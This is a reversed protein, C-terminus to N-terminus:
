NQFLVIQKAEETLVSFKYVRRHYQSIGSQTGNPWKGNEEYYKVIKKVCSEKTIISSNLDDEEPTIHKFDRMQSIHDRMMIEMNKQMKSVNIQLTDVNKRINEILVSQEEFKNKLNSFHTVMSTLDEGSTGSIKTMAAQFEKLMKLSYQLAYPSKFVNSVYLVPMGNVFELKLRGKSPINDTKLSVFLGCNCKGKNVNISMDRVFKDVNLNRSSAVNKVEVLCRLSKLNWLIDGSATTGSVDDIESEPFLETISNLVYNEGFDGKTINDTANGTGLLSEIKGMLAQQAETSHESLKTQLQNIQKSQIEHYNRFNSVATDYDTRMNNMTIIVSQTKLAEIEVERKKQDEFMERMESIKTEMDKNSVAKHAEFYVYEGLEIIKVMVEPSVNSLRESM